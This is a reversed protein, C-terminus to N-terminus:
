DQVLDALSRCWGKSGICLMERWSSVHFVTNRTASADPFRLPSIWARRKEENELFRCQDDMLRETLGEKKALVAKVSLPGLVSSETVIGERSSKTPLSIGSSSRSQGTLATLIYRSRVLAKRTPFRSNKIEGTNDRRLSM